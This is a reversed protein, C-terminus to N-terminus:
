SSSCGQLADDLTDFVEFLMDFGVMEFIEVIRPQLGLLVVDGGDDRARRWAAVLVKLGSSAIYEVASMDVFLCTIGQRLQDNLAMELRPSTNSDLRGAPSIVARNDALERVPFTGEADIVMAAGPIITPLHKILTLYNRGQRREYTVDDMLRRIFYIGWGGPERDDLAASPDPSDHELPNFAPSDDAIAILFQNDQTQCVVEIDHDEGKFHYGHEIINTLTEDVAMQCHYVAREDLGAMAAAEVVFDCVHRVEDLRAPIVLRSEQPM